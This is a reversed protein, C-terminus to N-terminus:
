LSQLQEGTLRCNIWSDDFGSGFKEYFGIAPENWNLVQWEMRKVGEKKAKQVVTEFLLKGFGKGRESETVIIDELFLCRGKWTSYKYYYLAIGVIRDNAEAVYFGFAPTAGFGLDKMQDQTVEVENGAKEYVALEKILALTAPLDEPRGDRIIVKMDM